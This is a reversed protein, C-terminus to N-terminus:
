LDRDLEFTLAMQVNDDYDYTRSPGLRSSFARYLESDGGVTAINDSLDLETMQVYSYLELRIQPSILNWLLRSHKRM